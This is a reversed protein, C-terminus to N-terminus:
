QAVCMFLNNHENGTQQQKCTLQNREYMRRIMRKVCDILDTSRKGAKFLIIM